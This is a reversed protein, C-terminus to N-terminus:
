ANAEDLLRQVERAWKAPVEEDLREVFRQLQAPDVSSAAPSPKGDRAQLAAAIREALDPQPAYAMYQETTSLRDHRM